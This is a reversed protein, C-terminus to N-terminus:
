QQTATNGAPQNNQQQTEYDAQAKEVAANYSESRKQLEEAPVTGPIFDDSVTRQIDKPMMDRWPAHQEHENSAIDLEKELQNVSAMAGRYMRQFKSKLQGLTRLLKPLDKPGVIILALAAVFMLEVWSVDFM